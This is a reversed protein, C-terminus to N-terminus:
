TTPIGEIIIIDILEIKVNQKIDGEGMILHEELGLKMISTSLNSKDALSSKIKSFDGETFSTKIGHEYRKTNDKMLFTVIVASLISDGFFELKEYDECSKNENVFSSHTLATILLKKNKFTYGIIKEVEVISKEDM